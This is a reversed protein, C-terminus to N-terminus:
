WAPDTESRSAGGQAVQFDKGKEGQFFTGGFSRSLDAAGM